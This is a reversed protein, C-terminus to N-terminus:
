PLIPPPIKREIRELFPNSKIGDWSSANLLAVLRGSLKILSNISNALFYPLNLIVESSNFDFDISQIDDFYWARDTILADTSLIKHMSRVDSVLKRLTAM